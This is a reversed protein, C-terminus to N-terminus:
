YPGWEQPAEVQPNRARSRGRHHCRRHGAVTRDPGASGAHREAQLPDTALM